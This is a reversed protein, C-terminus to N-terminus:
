GPAAIAWSHWLESDDEKSAEAVKFKMKKPSGGALLFILILSDTLCPYM